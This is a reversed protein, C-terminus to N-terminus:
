PVRIGVQFPFHFMGKIGTDVYSKEAVAQQKGGVIVVGSGCVHKVKVVYAYRREGIVGQKGVDTGHAVPTRFDGDADGGKFVLSISSFILALIVKWRM